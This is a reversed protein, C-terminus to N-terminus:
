LVYYTSLKLFIRGGKRGFFNGTDGEVVWGSKIYCVVTVPSLDEKWDWRKVGEDKTTEFDIAKNRGQKDSLLCLSWGERFVM